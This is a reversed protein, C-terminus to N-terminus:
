NISGVLLLCSSLPVPLYNEMGMKSQMHIFNHSLSSQFLFLSNRCSCILTNFPFPLSSFSLAKGLERASQTCHGTGRSGFPRLKSRCWISNARVQSPDQFPWSSANWLLLEQWSRCCCWFGTSATSHESCFVCAPFFFERLSFILTILGSLSLLGSAALHYFLLPSIFWYWKTPVQLHTMLQRQVSHEKTPFYPSLGPQLFYQLFGPLAEQSLLGRLIRSSPRARSKEWQLSLEQSKQRRSELYFFEWYAAGARSGRGGTGRGREFPCHPM